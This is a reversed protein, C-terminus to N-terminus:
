SPAKALADHLRKAARGQVSFTVNLNFGRRTVEYSLVTFPYLVPVKISGMVFHARVRRARHPTAVKRSSSSKILRAM